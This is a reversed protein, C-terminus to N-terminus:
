QEETESDSVQPERDGADFVTHYNQRTPQGHHMGEDHSAQSPTKVGKTEILLIRILVVKIGSEHCHKGTEVYPWVSARYETLDTFVTNLM